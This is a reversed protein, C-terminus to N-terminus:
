GVDRLEKIISLVFEASYNSAKKLFQEYTLKADKGAIDSISRIVIFPVDFQYCVQAIGAAEMESAYINKLKSKIWEIRKPDSNFSDSSAILGKFVRIKSRIKENREAIREAIKMLKADPLYKSPMQPIQGYEYGFVTADADSHRVETSIVIDCINLQDNFGGASGTNIIYDPQYLQIMLTTALAANVKGIGSKLLIIDSDNLKGTYFTLNAINKEEKDMLQPYILAIEEEMAGIIGIKM